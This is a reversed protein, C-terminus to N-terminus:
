HTQTIEKPRECKSSAKKLRQMIDNRKKSSIDAVIKIRQEGNLHLQDRNKNLNERAPM